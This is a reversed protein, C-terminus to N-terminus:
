SSPERAALLADAWAYAIGAWKAKDVKAHDFPERAIMGNLVMAAFYDRLSMGEQAANYDELRANAQDSFPRPFAPGGDPIRM